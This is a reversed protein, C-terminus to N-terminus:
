TTNTKKDFSIIIQNCVFCSMNSLKHPELNDINIIRFKSVDYSRNSKFGFSYKNKLNPTRNKERHQQLHKDLQLKKEQQFEKEDDSNPEAVSSLDVVGSSSSDFMQKDGSELSHLKINSRQWENDSSELISCMKLVREFDEENLSKLITGTTHIVISNFGSLMLWASIGVGTLTCGTVLGEEIIFGIERLSDISKSATKFDVLGLRILPAIPKLVDKVDNVPKAADTLLIKAQHESGMAVFETEKLKASFEYGGIIATAKRVIEVKSGKFVNKFKACILEYVQQIQPAPALSQNDAENEVPCRLRLNM